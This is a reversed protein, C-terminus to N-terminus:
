KEVEQPTWGTNPFLQAQIYRALENEGTEFLKNIENSIEITSKGKHNKKIYEIIEKSYKPAYKYNSILNLVRKRSNVAKITLNIKFRDNILDTIEKNSKGKHIEILYNDKEQNWVRKM